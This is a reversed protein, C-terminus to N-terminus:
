KTSATRSTETVAASRAQAAAARPMPVVTARRARARARPWPRGGARRAGGSWARPPTGAAGHRPPPPPRRVRARAPAHQRRGGPGMAALRPPSKAQTAPSGGEEGRERDDSSRSRRDSRARAPRPESPRSAVRPMAAASLECRPPWPRASPRPPRGGDADAQHDRAEALRHGAPELAGEAGVNVDRGRAQDAAASAVSARPRGRVARRVGPTAALWCWARATHRARAPRDFTGRRTIAGAPARGAETEPRSGGPARRPGARARAGHRSRARRRGAGSGGRAAGDGEGGVPAWHREGHRADEVVVARGPRRTMARARVLPVRPVAGDRREGQLGARRRGAASVSPPARAGRRAALVEIRSGRRRSADIPDEVARERDRRHEAGPWRPRGEEAHSRASPAAARACARARRAARARAQPRAARPRSAACVPSIPSAPPAGRAAGPCGSAATRMWTTLRRENPQVM